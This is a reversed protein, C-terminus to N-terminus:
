LYFESGKVGMEDCIEMIDAPEQGAFFLDAVVVRNAAKRRYAGSKASLWAELANMYWDTRGRCERDKYVKKEVIPMEYGDIPFNTVAADGRHKVALRDYTRAAAEETDCYRVIREGKIKIESRWQGTQAHYCVGRYPSLRHPERVPPEESTIGLRENSAKARELGTIRKKSPRVSKAKQNERIDSFIADIRAQEEQAAQNDLRLQAKQQPTM